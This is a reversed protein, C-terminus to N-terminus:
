WTNAAVLRAQGLPENAAMQKLQGCAQSIAECREFPASEKIKLTISWHPQNAPGKGRVHAFKPGYKYVYIYIYILAYLM